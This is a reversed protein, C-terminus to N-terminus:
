VTFVAKSQVRLIGTLAQGQCLVVDAGELHSLSGEAGPNVRQKPSGAQGHGRDMGEDERAAKAAMQVAFLSGTGTQYRFGQKGTCYERAVGGKGSCDAEGPLGVVVRTQSVETLAGGMERKRIRGGELLGIKSVHIELSLDGAPM